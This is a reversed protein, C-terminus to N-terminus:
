VLAALISRLHSLPLGEINEVITDPSLALIQQIYAARDFKKRTAEPISFDEGCWPCFRIVAADRTEARALGYEDRDPPDCERRGENIVSYVVIFQDPCTDNEHGQHDCGRSWHAAHAQMQVCCFYPTASSM